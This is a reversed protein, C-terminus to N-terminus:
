AGSPATRTPRARAPTPAPTRGGSRSRSWAPRCSTWAPSSDPWSSPAACTIPRQAARAISGRLVRAHLLVLPDNDVYVIRSQPAVRQAVEHTNDVTPLGSGIDLFQRIGAEGALYRVARNLFQRDSRALDAIAPYVQRLQEGLERDVAFNDKGGLWFNWIRASHPVSANLRPAATGDQPGTEAAM